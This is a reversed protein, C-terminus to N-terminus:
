LARMRQRWAVAWAALEPWGQGGRGCDRRGPAGGFALLLTGNTVPALAKSARSRDVVRVACAEPPFHREPVEHSRAPDLVYLVTDAGGVVGLWGTHGVKGEPDGCVLWRTADGPTLVAHRNRQRLAEDRPTFLPQWRRRGETVTGPGLDVGLLQGHQLLRGTPRHSAFQDRLIDVGLSVGLRGKPIRQPV